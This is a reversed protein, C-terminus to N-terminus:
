KGGIWWFLATALAAASLMTMLAPLVVLLIFEWAEKIRDNPM